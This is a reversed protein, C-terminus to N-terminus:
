CAGSAAGDLSRLAGGLVWEDCFAAELARLVNLVAGKTFQSATGLVVRQSFRFTRAIGSIFELALLPHEITVIDFAAVGNNFRRDTGM